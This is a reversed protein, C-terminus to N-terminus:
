LVGVKEMIARRIEDVRLRHREWEETVLKVVWDSSSADPNRFEDNVDVLIGQKSEPSPEIKARLFGAYDDERDAQITLSLTRPNKLIPDWYKEKPALEHGLAEYARREPIAYHSTSNLGVAEIPAHPLTSFTGLVFDRLSEFVPTAVSAVMWRNDTVELRLWSTSFVCFDNNIIQVDAEAADEESLLGQAVFWAPQHIRPNFAGLCVVSVREHDPAHSM